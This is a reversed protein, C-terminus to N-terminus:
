RFDNRLGELEDEPVEYFRVQTALSGVICLTLRNTPQWRHSAFWQFTFALPCSQGM